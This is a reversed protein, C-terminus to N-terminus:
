FPLEDNSEYEEVPVKLDKNEDSYTKVSLSQFENIAKECEELKEEFEQETIPIHVKQMRDSYMQKTQDNGRIKNITLSTVHPDDSFDLYMVNDYIVKM